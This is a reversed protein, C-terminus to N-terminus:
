GPRPKRALARAAAERVRISRRCRVDTHLSLGRARREACPTGRPGERRGSPRHAEREESAYHAAWRVGERALILPIYTGHLWELYEARGEPPLDYWTIWLARDLRDTENMRRPHRSGQLAEGMEPNRVQAYGLVQEPTSGVTEVGMAFFREKVDARRVFRAITDSLRRIIPEPTGAPAFIGNMAVAEYGPLTAAVAPLNPFLASPEASTVAVAKVKGTKVHPAISAATAFMLGVEGSVLGIVAPGGGKYPVAVINVRAMSKFLEASLHPPGGAAARAYDLEGPRARALAILQKVSSVALSPHVVLVNPSRDVLSVAAFDKLPDYPVNRRLLPLLWITSGYALLTYGDPKSRALMEGAIAGSAGGRNEVIVQQGLEGSVGQAILRAGFDTGGGPESTLIRIPRTPYDQGYVQSAGLLAFLALAPACSMSRLTMQMIRSIIFCYHRILRERQAGRDCKSEREGADDFADDSHTQGCHRHAQEDHEHRRRLGRRHEDHGREDRVDPLERCTWPERAAALRNAVIIAPTTTPVKMPM